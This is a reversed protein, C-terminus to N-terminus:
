STFTVECSDPGCDPLAEGPTRVRRTAHRSHLRPAAAPMYASWGAGEGGATVLILDEPDQFTPLKGDAGPAMEHQAGVELMVGGAELEAPTVRTEEVLFELARQVSWGAQRVALAHEPGMVMVGQGGKGVSFTAAMKMASAFTRLVGAPDENLANGIQRPAECGMVTVTTDQRAYGLRVRLPEWPAPPDDEAFCFSYRGPHGISAADLKGSRAGLVNMAVLRVARGITANARNGSGLANHRANMGVQAALPGSVIVCTASGGTSALMTDANHAPDTLAGLAALVIPFHEPLCGAMVANVAAQHATITRHRRALVGVVEDAAVGGGALMAEVLAPRPPVVPLGDTWGLRYLEEHADLADVEVTPERLTM